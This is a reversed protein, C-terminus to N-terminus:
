EMLECEVAIKIFDDIQDKTEDLYEAVQKLLLNPIEDVTFPLRNETMAKELETDDIDMTIIAKVKVIL